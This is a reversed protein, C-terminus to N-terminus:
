STQRHSPAAPQTKIEAVRDSRYLVASADVNESRKRWFWFLRGDTLRAVIRGGDICPGSTITERLEIEHTSRSLTALVGTCGLSPYSIRGTGDGRLTMAIDWTGQAGGPGAQLGVGRWAGAIQAEAPLVNLAALIFATAAFGTRASM